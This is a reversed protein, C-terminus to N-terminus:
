RVLPPFCQDREGARWGAALALVQLQPLRVFGAHSVLFGPIQEGGGGVAALVPDLIKKGYEGGSVADHFDLCASSPFGSEAGEHFAQYSGAVEEADVGSKGGVLAGALFDYADASRKRSSGFGEDGSFAPMLTKRIKGACIGCPLQFGRGYVRHFSSGFLDFLNRDSRKHQKSFCLMAQGFFGIGFGVLMGYVACKAPLKM